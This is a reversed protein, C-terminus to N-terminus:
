QGRTPGQFHVFHAPGALFANAHAAHRQGIHRFLQGEFHTAYRLFSRSAYTIFSCGGSVSFSMTRWAPTIECFGSSSARVTTRTCSASAPPSSIRFSCSIIRISMAILSLRGYRMLQATRAWQASRYRFLVHIEHPLPSASQGRLSPPSNTYRPISPPAGATFATGTFSVPAITAVHHRFFDVRGRLDGLADDLVDIQLWSGTTLFQEASDDAM